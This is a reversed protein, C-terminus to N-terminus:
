LKGSKFAAAQNQLDCIQKQKSKLLRLATKRAM